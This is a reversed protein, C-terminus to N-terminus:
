FNRRHDRLNKGRNIALLVVTQWICFARLIIEFFQDDRRASNCRVMVAITIMFKYSFVLSGNARAIDQTIGKRQCRNRRENKCSDADKTVYKYGTRGSHNKPRM